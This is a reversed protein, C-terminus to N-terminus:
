TDNHVKVSGGSYHCGHNPDFEVVAPVAFAFSEYFIIIIAGMFAWIASARTLSSVVSQITVHLSHPTCSAVLRVSAPVRNYTTTADSRYGM